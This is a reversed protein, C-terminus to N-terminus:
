NAKKLAVVTNIAGPVAGKLFLIGKEADIKVIKLKKITQYKNGMQGPMGYGKVVKAPTSTAGNSGIRRHTTSGHTKPQGSWGHRRMGGQFGKGKSKARVDVLDGEQFVDQLLIEEGCVIESGDAVAVEKVMKYPQTKLKMFYGLQPKKIKKEAVTFAGIKAKVKQAYEKKELVKAPEAKILTVAILDGASNFMQTMGLKKGFLQTLKTKKEAVSVDGEPQEKKAVQEKKEESM